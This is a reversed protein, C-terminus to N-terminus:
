FGVIYETNDGNDGNDDDGDHGGFDLPKINEIGTTFTINASSCYEGVDEMNKFEKDIIDELDETSPAPDKMDQEVTLEAMKNIDLVVQFASTGFYGEQGCMVNASVGKVMDLEAHRAAKLFIEPTEEFSAKAIPGIDDNNIGHRFISVLKNNCSMRDVLLNLHHDNIYASDEIVETFENKIAQRAAELGLVRYVEIIDNTITRTKDVFDLALIELLNTGVTDLVWLEQKLYQGEKEVMNDAIKRLLVKSINKVGYLILNDLLEDQFNNLMYIEDSQDLSTLVGGSTATRKKAAGVTTQIRMRFVLNDDNYDSYMCSIENKYANNIAFHVDDMGVNKDLMKERNMTMRIIWKSKKKTSSISQETAGCEDLMKEFERYQRMLPEDEKVVTALEAPDFCIDISDVIDRLRTYEIKNIYSQVEEQNTEIARPLFVTCSPAKPNDSLTLIEEIRPVGRTVNSKSSIGSHHFTNLTLQTTPEGISQASVMGVMEGPAIIAQKYAREIFMMLLDISAKCLRHKMLLDKPSLYFYFIAKFLPNEGIYHSSSLRKFCAEIVEFVELPTIDIMINREQRGRVNNIIASFAVPINVNKNGTNDFVKEVIEKRAQIFYDIYSKCRLNTEAKQRKFRSYAPKTYLTTYVERTKSTDAPPQFHAYIEENTMSLFPAQQTEIKVPDFCDDGYKFQIIKNKNNRVTMDYHVMLDEMGKILRRQIYGTSSTKVATDILGVRGGMAHFFMEEPKLGGIFSNEVFGRASPSDDYKTFHPLTRSDYGYPIRRGDVNQQGLCSIMQSINLDSGKSGANVMIVFRNDKDLNNRGIKGVEMTAKNLINNVRTEFEEVNSKGTKNDFIGLHTEDILNRVEVKKSNIADIIRNNTELNAILDSIGVSYSSLKMYETIINQLDDVFQACATSDYDNYIRQLLGRGGDGLVNKDLQGRLYEGNEIELVNNSTAPDDGDRFQKTRYKMSMEPFIQSLIDFNSVRSKSFDIRSLDLRKMYMLLNM